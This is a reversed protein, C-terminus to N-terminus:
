QQSLWSFVITLYAIHLCIGGLLTWSWGVTTLFSMNIRAPSMCSAVTANQCCDQLKCQGTGGVTTRYFILSYLVHMHYSDSEIHTLTSQICFLLLILHERFAHPLSKHTYHCEREYVSAIQMSAHTDFPFGEFSVKQLHFGANLIIPWPIFTCCQVISLLRSSLLWNRISKQYHEVNPLIAFNPSFFEYFYVWSFFIQLSQGTSRTENNKILM